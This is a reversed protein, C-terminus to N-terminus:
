LAGVRDYRRLQGARLMRRSAAEQRQADAVLSINSKM